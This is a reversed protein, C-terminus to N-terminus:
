GCRNVLCLVCVCACACPVCWLIPCSVTSVMDHINIHIDHVGCLPLYYWTDHVYAIYAIYAIPRDCGLLQATGESVTGEEYMCHVM